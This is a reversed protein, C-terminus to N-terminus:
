RLADSTPTSLATTPSGSISLPMGSAAPLVGLLRAKLENRHRYMIALLEDDEIDGLGHDAHDEGLFGLHAVLQGFRLDPALSLIEALTAFMERQIDPTM